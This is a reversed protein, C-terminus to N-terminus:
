FTNEACFTNEAYFTRSRTKLELSRPPTSPVGLAQVARVALVM